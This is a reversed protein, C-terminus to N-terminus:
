DLGIYAAPNVKVGNKIVEFHLHNGTSYGTTGVLAILEGKSVTKGVSVCLKSAHAYLTRIGNGHDIEVCYGYGGRWGAYAVRGALVSTIATGRPARLDIARHNRGDGYYASVQWTGSPLPFAFGAKHANEKQQAQAANYATGVTIIETVPESIMVSSTVERSQEEGDIFVVKETLKKVGKVGKQNVRSYGTVKENTKKVTTQYAVSVKSEVVAETKVSLADIHKQASEINEVECCLYYGNKIEVDDIFSSVCKKGKVAFKDLRENIYSDLVGQEVCAIEEGNILLVSASVIEESNKIIAEAVEAQSSLNEERELSLNYKPMTVAAKINSGSVRAEVLTLADSIESLSEVSAVAQNGYNLKYAIKINSFSLSLLIAILAAM